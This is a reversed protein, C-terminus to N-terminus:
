EAPDTNKQPEYGTMAAFTSSAIERFSGDEERVIFLAAAGPRDEVWRPGEGAGMVFLATALGDAELCTGAAVSVSALNHRVPRGARPDLIHTYRRGDPGEFYNRYDGSTAVAFGSVRLVAEISSGPLRGADPTEIGVRWKGGDPNHGFALIEGGLEVFLNSVGFSRIVRAVEDAGFGPVVAGLDLELEPIDKQLEGRDTVRLHRCGSVALASRIDDEAPPADRRGKPGFGWLDILPALAPDFAGDSQRNLEVAFRAVTAFSESVPFPDTSRNRNFRSIESDPRYHSMQRNLEALRGSVATRLGALQKQTLTSDALKISYTTGMTEGTWAPNAPGRADRRVTYLFFAILVALVWATRVPHFPRPQVLSM